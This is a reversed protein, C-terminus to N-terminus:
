SAVDTGATIGEKKKYLDCTKLKCATTSNNTCKKHIGECGAATYTGDISIKACDFTSQDYCAKGGWVCDKGASNTVCAGSIM